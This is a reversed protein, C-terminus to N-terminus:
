GDSNERIMYRISNAFLKHEVMAQLAIEYAEHFNNKLLEKQSEQMLQNIKILHQAYDIM